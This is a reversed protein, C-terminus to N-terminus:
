YEQTPLWIVPCNQAQHQPQYQQFQLPFQGQKAVMGWSNVFTFINPQYAGYNQPVSNWNSPNSSPQFGQFNPPVQPQYNQDYRHYYNSAPHGLKYCVQCQVNPYHGGRDRGRGNRSGRGRWYSRYGSYSNYNSNANESAVNAQVSSSQQQQVKLSAIEMLNLSATKSALKKQSKELQMEHAFYM